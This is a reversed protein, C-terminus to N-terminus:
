SSSLGRRYSDVRDLWGPLWRKEQRVPPSNRVRLELVRKASKSFEQVAPGDRMGQLVQLLGWGQGAYRETPLTGEGKFNVYDILAYMGSPRAAVRYFNSEVRKRQTTPVARLMKPLANELREALFRSQLPVTNALFNRLSRMKQSEFDALFERRTKWPCSQSELLWNPVSAGHRRLFLILEPFSEEFPGHRGAPYWIFHGIG